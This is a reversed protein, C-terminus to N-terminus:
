NLFAGIGRAKLEALSPVGVAEFRATPAADTNHVNLIAMIAELHVGVRRWLPYEAVHRPNLLQDADYSSTQYPNPTEILYAASQTADGWERHSLGRFSPSSAEIRMDIGRDALDVAANAAQEIHKPNAIILWALRSSPGAEHLDFAVKAGESGILRTLAYAMKQTLNGDAKGPHARNLNRVEFGPLKEKSSPHVYSLPDPEGQHAPLTLRTGVAFSRRGLATQFAFASPGLDKPSRWGAGSANARPVVILRGRQVVAREVLITAAIIGAMEFCHTGGAVFVTPGAEKGELVFVATDGPTGALTPLWESLRRQATVGSGPQIETTLASAPSKQDSARVGACGATLHLLPLAAISLTFRRRMNKDFEKFL